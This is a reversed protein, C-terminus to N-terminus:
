TGGDQGVATDVEPTTGSEAAGAAQDLQALPLVVVPANYDHLITFPLSYEVTFPSTRSENYQFQGFVVQYMQQTFDIFLDCAGKSAEIRQVTENQWGEYLRKFELFHELGTKGHLPNDLPVGWGFSGAMQGTGLGKGLSDVYPSGLTQTVTLRTPLVVQIDGPNIQFTFLGPRQPFKIRVGKGQMSRDGRERRLGAQAGLASGASRGANVAQTVM